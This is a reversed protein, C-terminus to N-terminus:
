SIMAVADSSQGGSSIFASSGRNMRYVEPDVPCGLPTICVDPPYM